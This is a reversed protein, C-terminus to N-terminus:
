EGTYLTENYLRPVALPRANAYICAARTGSLIVEDRSDGWVDAPRAYHGYTREEDTPSVAYELTLLDLINGEGDYIASPVEPKIRYFRDAGRSVMIVPSRNAVLAADLAGPGLWNIRACSVAWSEEPQERRWVEGGDPDYLLLTAPKLANRDGRNVVMFQVESDARFRGAVVHQAEALPHHWLEGGRVDLCHVGGNGFALRWSGDRLRVMCAADQHHDFWEADRPRGPEEEFLVRGDHDVLAFGVFVEDCGDGDVDGIAPFHGVSGSWRWLEHGNHAIGWMNWYEDKVVLDERRGRGTLDAFLFAGDAPAPLPFRQKERGTLGDLVVMTAAGEYRKARQVAYSTGPYLEAYRAQLVYLVENRGDNDWDYVQVPLDGYTFGRERSPEGVQWLVRGELTTATLCTIARIGYINQVFLLDPAGDGNLDGIRFTESGFDKVDVVSVLHTPVFFL